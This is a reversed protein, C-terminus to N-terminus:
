QGRGGKGGGIGSGQGGGKGAGQGQCRGSGFGGGMGRGRGMGAHVPRTPSSIKTLEGLKFKDVADRVTRGQQQYVEINAATLTQLVNPGINGTILASVGSQAITQAAQIGVGGSDGANINSISNENMSDVDVIVFFSCRGFRPDLPADLGSASATICIKM